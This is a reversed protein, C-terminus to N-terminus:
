NTAQRWAKRARQDVERTSEDYRAALKHYSPSTPPLQELKARTEARWDLLTSDDLTTFDQTVDM